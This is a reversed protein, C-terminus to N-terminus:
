RGFEGRGGIGVGFRRNAEKWARFAYLNTDGTEDYYRRRGEDNLIDTAENIVKFKEEAGVDKNRDPHWQMKLKKGERTIDEKTAAKTLGLVEYLNPDEKRLPQRPPHPFFPNSTASAFGSQSYSTGQGPPIPGYPRGPLPVQGHPGETFPPVCYGMPAPPFGTRSHMYAAGPMGDPRMHSHGHGMGGRRPPGRGRRLEKLEREFQDGDEEMKGGGGEFMRTNRVDDISVLSEELTTYHYPGTRRTRVADTIAHELFELEQDTAKYLIRDPIPHQM